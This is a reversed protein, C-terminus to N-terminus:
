SDITKVAVRLKGPEVAALCVSEPRIRVPVLRSIGLERSWQSIFDESAHTGWLCLPELRTQKDKFVKPKWVFHSSIWHTDPHAISNNKIAHKHADVAVFLTDRNSMLRPTCFPLCNCAENRLNVCVNDEKNMFVVFGDAANSSVVMNSSVSANVCGSAYVWIPSSPDSEVRIITNYSVDIGPTVLRCTSGVSNSTDGITDVDYIGMADAAISLIRGRNRRSAESVRRLARAGPVGGESLADDLTKGDKLSAALRAHFTQASVGGGAKCVLYYSKHSRETGRYQADEAKSQQASYIGVCCGPGDFGATWEKTDRDSADCDLEPGCQLNTDQMESPVHQAMKSMVKERLTSDNLISEAKETAIRVFSVGSFWNPSFIDPNLGTANVSLRLVVNRVCKSEPSINANPMLIAEDEKRLSATLFAKLKADVEDLAIIRAM